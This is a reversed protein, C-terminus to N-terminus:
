ITSRRPSSVSAGFPDFPMCTPDTQDLVSRCVSRCIPTWWASRARIRRRERRGVCADSARDLIREQLGAHLQHPRVPLLQRVVLREFHRRARRASWALQHHRLDSIRPGGETNRRLLQFFAQNYTLGTASRHLRARHRGAYRPEPQVSRGDRAPLQRPLRQDPKAGSRRSMRDALDAIQPPVSMLPNDCNITTTNGFDGSPAIQALTRDDM